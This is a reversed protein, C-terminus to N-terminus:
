GWPLPPTEIPAAQMYVIQANLSAEIEAVKQAGLVGQVWGIVEAETLDAYPIFPASPPPLETEGGQQATNTGDTDQVLWGSIHVVDDFGAEQKEVYLATISWTAAM